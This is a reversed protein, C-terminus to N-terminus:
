SKALDEGKGEKLKKGKVRQAETGPDRDRERQIYLAPTDERRVYMREKWVM